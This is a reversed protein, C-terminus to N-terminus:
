MQFGGHSLGLAVGVFATGIGIINLWREPATASVMQSFLGFFFAFIGLCVAVFHTSEVLGFCFALLGVAITIGALSNERPHATRHRQLVHPM